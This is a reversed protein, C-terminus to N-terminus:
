RTPGVPAKEAQEQLRRFVTDFGVGACADKLEQVFYSPPRTGWRFHKTDPAAQALQRWIETAAGGFEDVAMIPLRRAVAIQGAILTSKGGAVLLV